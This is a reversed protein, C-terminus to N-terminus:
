PYEGGRVLRVDYTSSLSYFYIKGSAQDLSFILGNNSEVPSASWYHAAPTDPFVSVNIAPDSCHFSVLSSLSRINPLRWDTYGAYGGSQDLQQVAQLAQQWTYTKATGTCTGNSSDWSQGLSCQMWMLGTQKDVVTGNSEVLYRSTPHNNAIANYCAQQAFVPASVLLAALSSFLILRLKM